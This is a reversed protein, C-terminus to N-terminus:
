FDQWTKHDVKSPALTRGDVSVGLEPTIDFVHPLTRGLEARVINRGATAEFRYRARIEHHGRNGARFHAFIALDQAGAPVTVRLFTFTVPRPLSSPGLTARLAHGGLTVEVETPENAAGLPLPYVLVVDVHADLQDCRVAASSAPAGAPRLDARACAATGLLAALLCARCFPPSM